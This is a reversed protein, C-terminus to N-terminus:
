LLAVEKEIVTGDVLTITWVECTRAALGEAYGESRGLEYAEESQDKPLNNIDNLLSQIRRTNNHLVAM